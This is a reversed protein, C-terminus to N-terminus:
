VEELMRLWYRAARNRFGHDTAWAYSMSRLTRLRERNRLMDTLELTLDEATAVHVIPPRPYFRDVQHHVHRVDALVACGAAMAEVSSAGFGGIAPQMQDVFIHCRARRALCERYTVGEILELEVPLSKLVTLILDTGKTSRKSPSHGVVIPGSQDIPETVLEDAPAHYPVAKPDNLTHRYLDGGMFRRAFPADHEDCLKVRTRYATGGHRIAVKAERLQHALSERIRTFARYNSDGVGIIWDWKIRQKRLGALAREGVLDEQYGFPHPSISLCRANHGLDRMGRAIRNSINANDRGGAFLINM